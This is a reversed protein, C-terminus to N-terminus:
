QDLSRSRKSPPTVDSERRRKLTTSEDPYLAHWTKKLQALGERFVVYTRAPKYLQRDFRSVDGSNREAFEDPMYMYSRKVATFLFELVSKLAALEKDKTSWVHKPLQIGGAFNVLDGEPVPTLSPIMDKAEALFGAQDAEPVLLMHRLLAMTFMRTQHMTECGGMAAAVMNKVADICSPTLVNHLKVMSNGEIPLGLAEQFWQTKQQGAQGPDTSTTKLMYASASKMRSILDATNTYGGISLNEMSELDYTAPTTAPSARIEIDNSVQHAQRPYENLLTCMGKCIIAEVDRRFRHPPKYEYVALKACYFYMAHVPELDPVKAVLANIAKKRQSDCMHLTHIYTMKILKLCVQSKASSDTREYMAKLLRPFEPSLHNEMICEPSLGIGESFQRVVNLDEHTYDDLSM